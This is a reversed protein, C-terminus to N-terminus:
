KCLISPIWKQCCSIRSKERFKTKKTQTGKPRGQGRSPKSGLDSTHQTTSSAASSHQQDGQSSMVHNETETSSASPQQDDQSAMTHDEKEM